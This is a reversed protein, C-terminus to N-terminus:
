QYTSVLHIHNHLTPWITYEFSINTFIAQDFSTIFFNSQTKITSDPINSVNWIQLPTLGKLLTSNQTIM